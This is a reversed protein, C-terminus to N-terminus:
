AGEGGAPDRWAVPWRYNGITKLGVRYGMARADAMAARHATRLVKRSPRVALSPPAPVWGGPGAEEVRWPYRCYWARDDAPLILARVTYIRRVEPAPPRYAQADGDRRPISSKAM